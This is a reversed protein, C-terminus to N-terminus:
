RGRPTVLCSGNGHRKTLRPSISTSSWITPKPCTCFDLSSTLSRAEGRFSGPCQLNTAPLETMSGTLPYVQRRKTTESPLLEPTRKSHSAPCRYVNHIVFVCTWLEPFGPVRALTQEPPTLNM